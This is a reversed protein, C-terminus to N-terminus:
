RNVSQFVFCFPVLSWLFSREYEKVIGRLSEVCMEMDKVCMYIRCM